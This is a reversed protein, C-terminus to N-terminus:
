NSDLEMQVESECVRREEAAEERSMYPFKIRGLLMDIVAFNGGESRGIVFRGAMAERNRLPFMGAAKM